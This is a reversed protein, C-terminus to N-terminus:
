YFNLAFDRWIFLFAFICLNKSDFIGQQPIKLSSNSFVITMNQIM